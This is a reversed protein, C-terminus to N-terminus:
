SIINNVGKLYASDIKFYQWAHQIPYSNGEFRHFDSGGTEIFNLERSLYQLFLVAGVSHHPSLVEIGDIGIKKLKVLFEKNIYNHKGPHNLILQGGIKKRLKVVRMINIYSERLRGERSYFFKKIIDDERPKRSNLNGCILKKNSSSKLIEDILRNIPVYHNFQDLIKESDMRFGKSKLIELVKRVKNRRSFQTERLIEHLQADDHYNYWLLNFRKNNFTTYLELGKITRIGNNRCARRFESQGSITNHDTLSAVKVGMKKLYDAIQTPTLYGDSYTSHIQLDILM